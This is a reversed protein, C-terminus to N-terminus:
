STLRKAREAATKRGHCRACRAMANNPDLPGGGDVLEVVHDAYLKVGSRPHIEDHDPDECRYGARNMADAAWAKHEPTGYHEAARKPQRPFRSPARGLRPPLSRLRPM